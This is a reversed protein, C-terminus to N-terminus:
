GEKKNITDLPMTAFAIAAARLLLWVLLDCRRATQPTVAISLAVAQDSVDAEASSACKMTTTGEKQLYAKAIVSPSLFGSYIPPMSHWIVEVEIILWCTRVRM